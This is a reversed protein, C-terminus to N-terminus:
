KVDASGDTSASGGEEAGGEPELAKPETMEIEPASQAAAAEEAQADAVKQEERLRHHKNVKHNLLSFLGNLGYLVLIVGTLITVIGKIKEPGLIVIVVGAAVTIWPMGYWIRNVSGLDHREAVLAMIQVIGAILLLVGLTYVIYAALFSAFSILLIGIVLGIICAAATYWPLNKRTGDAQKKGAFGRGIGFVSPLIILVGIIIVMLTFINEKNHFICLLVGIILGLLYTTLYPKNNM